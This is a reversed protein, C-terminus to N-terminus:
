PAFINVGDGQSVTGTRGVFDETTMATMLDADEPTNAYFRPASLDDIAGLRGIVIGRAPTGDRGFELTYTEITAPGSPATEFPPHPLADIGAQYTKPDERTWPGTTPVTSYIGASHKTLYGGNATVLGFEGPHARVKEAMAAISNMVYNNGAGGHFPLGGTISLPRPDDAAIGFEDRAIQVASPFCSYFDFFAMEDISRGAMSLTKEAMTRIAPSSFYNVREAMTWLENTDACGHLYVFKEEPIGLEHAYGVSTLLLAASQNIQNMANMFKTYPWGVYRNKPTATAIEEASRRIPFWAYPSAAAAESFPEFLRGMLLQHEEISHGYHHRLGNEYLPYVNSPQLLGHAREADGWMKRDPYLFEPDASAEEEWPPTEGAKMYRGVTDIAEAGSFLCFRAEGRAIAESFRNMLYQPGNGGDPMLWQKAASAGVRKALAEPSNRVSERFSKVVVLTDLDAARERGIGADEFALFTAQEMLSVPSSADELPKDKETVQGVGVLVPMRDDSM